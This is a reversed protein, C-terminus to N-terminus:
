CDNVYILLFLYKFFNLITCNWGEIPPCYHFIYTRRKKVSLFDYSGNM